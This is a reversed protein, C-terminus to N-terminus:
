QPQPSAGPMEEAAPAAAPPPVDSNYIDAYIKWEGYQRKWIEIFKGTDVVAGNADKVTFTGLNYATDGQSPSELSVIEIKFGGGADKALQAEIAAKGRALPAGPPLLIADETYVAALAKADGNNFADQWGQSPNAPLPKGAPACAGILTAGVVLILSRLTSLTM